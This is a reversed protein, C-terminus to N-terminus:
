GLFLWKGNEARRPYSQETGRSFARGNMLRRAWKTRSLVSLHHMVPSVSLHTGEGARYTQRGNHTERSCGSESAAGQRHSVHGKGLDCSYQQCGGVWPSVPTVTCARSSESDTNVRLTAKTSSDSTQIEAKAECELLKMPAPFLAGTLAQSNHESKCLGLVYWSFLTKM